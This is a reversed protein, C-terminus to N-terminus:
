IDDNSCEEESEEENISDLSRICEFMGITAMIAAFVLGSASYDFMFNGIIICAVALMICGVLLTILVKKM